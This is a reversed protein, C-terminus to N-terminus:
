AVRSITFQAFEPNATSGGDSHPRILSGAPLYGTWACNLTASSATGSAASTLRDASTVFQISTSLQSSNLSIGLFGDTNGNKYTVGIAYVGATNVTLLAGLTASDAYTVDSVQNTVATTFRLIRTNTSGFGNSTQLRVMSQPTGMVLTGNANITALVGGSGDSRRRIRLAGALDTDILFNRTDDANSGIVYADTKVTM